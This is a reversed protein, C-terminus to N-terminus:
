GSLPLAFNVVTGQGPRSDIQLHGNIAALRERMGILGLTGSSCAKVDFGHGDDQVSILITPGAKLARHGLRVTATRAHAHKIVNSLAEQVLRFGIIAREQGVVPFGEDIELRFDIGMKLRNYETVVEQLAGKLGLVDLLEPRLQKVIGRASEYLQMTAGVIDDATARILASSRPFSDSAAVEAIHEAKYRVAILSANLHDHIEVSIRRREEELQMNSRAILRRREADTQENRAMANALEQTRQELQCTKEMIRQQLELRRTVVSKAMDEVADQLEGIEGDVRPVLSFDCAGMRVQRVAVMVADLPARLRRALGLAILFSVIGALVVSSVSTLTHWRHRQYIPGASMTVRVVGVFHEARAAPNAGPDSNMSGANDFLNLDLINSAVPREFEMLPGAIQRRVEAIRRRDVDFAKMAAIWPDARMMRRMAEELSASNGSRIGYESTEALTAAVLGGHERVAIDAEREGIVYSSLSIALAMISAPLGAVLAFRM